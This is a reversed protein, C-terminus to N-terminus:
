FERTFTLLLKLLNSFCGLIHLPSQVYRFIIDSYTIHENYFEGSFSNFEVVTMKCYSLINMNQSNKKQQVAYFFSKKTRFLTAQGKLFM